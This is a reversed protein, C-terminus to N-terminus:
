HLEYSIHKVSNDRINDMREHNGKDFVTSKIYSKGSKDITIISSGYEFHVRGDPRAMVRKFM